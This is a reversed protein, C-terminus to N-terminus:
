RHIKKKKKSLIDAQTECREPDNTTLYYYRVHTNTVVLLAGEGSNDQRM